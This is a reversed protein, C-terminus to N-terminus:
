PLVVFYKERQNLFDYYQGVIEYTFFCLLKEGRGITLTIDSIGKIRWCCHNLM